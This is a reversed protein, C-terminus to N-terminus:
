SGHNPGNGLVRWDGNSPLPGQVALGDGNIKNGDPNSIDWHIAHSVGPVLEVTESQWVLSANSLVKVYFSTPGHLGGPLEGSYVDFSLGDFYMAPTSFSANSIAVV